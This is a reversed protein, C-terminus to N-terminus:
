AREELAAEESALLARIEDDSLGDLESLLDEAESGEAALVGRGVAEAFEALSPAIFLTSLPLEIGFVQRVRSLIKTALLSHGGLDWFSDHVGIEDIGLVTRWVGAIQEELPTRPGVLEVTLDRTAEPAPLAKRDIKGSSTLPTSKLLVIAAPVMFPPLKAQLMQRLEAPTVSETGPVVYAALRKDGPRDERPIVVATQVGPHSELVAEIEGPEIRFGRLKVQSDVRGLFELEGARWRSLDGTDYLRAGPERSMPDPVFREATLDPRSVYGRALGDGGVYLKGAVGPPVLRLGAALVYVQTNAIPRGIPVPTGTEPTLAHCTTFTTGETPGYCHLLATQPLTRVAQHLHAPSGVDGGTLLQGVGRLADVHSEVMQNFLGTTLFLVTVGYRELFAGLEELSPPGPPFIVLRGGHLLAGWIEWTSADFSVASLQLFVEGPGFRAYDTDCVLRAVNRHTVAVGKPRGTSGSTFMVYALSEPDATVEAFPETSGHFAESLLVREGSVPLAAAFRDEVVQVRAGVDALMGALRESPFQPDLPVYAGGAKLTGLVAAILDASREVCLGVCVDPGVGLARLRAALRGARRDLEAYTTEGTADVVAVADPTRAVQAAFLEHLTAARPYPSPARNWDVLVQRREAEALLPLDGVAAEPRAVIGALLIAFHRLLRRATAPEFLDLAYEADAVFTGDADKWFGLSLDLKATGTDAPLPEVTLGPALAMRGASESEVSFFVDLLPNRSLDRQPALEEVLKEFPVDQHAFAALAKERVRGLLEDFSPEGALDLRLVLTNVFFGILDETEAQTRHAVPTGIWLDAQGTYRHLLVAFGALLTMFSTARRQLGLREVAGALRPDLSMREIGGRLTQVAPRPHDAPLELAPPGDALTRRWWDLQAELEGGALWRRQWAAFDAYQIPLEPLPSPEDATLAGYLVRLERLLVGISWGDSVIHHMTLILYHEKPSLRALLSRLLPGRELEFPRRPEEALLRGTETERFPEELGSLDVQALRHRGAAAVVQVPEGDTDLAFSTRLAAHRRVIETLAAELVGASLPGEARLVLSLNYVPLGPQLRDLFWLRQQASSLPSRGLGRPAVRELAPAGSRERMLGAVAAAVGAVTPQEFLARVPLEVGFIERIRSVTRMALLSHGGLEFFSDHIGVAGVGLLEAWVAALTTEMATRPAQPETELARESDPAPLARRDVKGNPTRPLAELLVFVAPVMYAPLRDQLRQRLEGTSVELAGSVYAVLRRVGPEDERAVVVAEEVGPCAALAAEIEGLEVRFGRIKVQHDLRGLYELEGDARWRVLDGVRYMRAGPEGFPDPLFREATLEPRGRYGRALGGGALYLEGPVGVPVPRLRRDLVWARKNHLPIGISPARASHREILAISSFTTDESPGYLNYLRETEPRRYARDALARPVAEGGLNITRVSAPLGDMALLEAAASPVTDLLRVEVGAPLAGPAKLAPLALASEVMILTGGWALTVFIEFVSMDFTISTSALVGAFEEGSFTERTWYALLVASRHEIAVAKPRGTSGSTYILYALNGPLVPTRADKEDRSDEEDKGAELRLLRAGSPPLAAEVSGETLVLECGSDELLVALREAPYAPDLPVYFGGARLVALLAIVLGPTRPLCIGVPVEPGIGLGRLRQALRASRRELDAYTLTEGGCVLAIAEPTRAAQAEFLGHLVEGAPHERRVSERWAALQRREEETLLPLDAVQSEPAAVMGALLMSLHGLLRDITAEDFLDAAYEATVALTEGTRSFLLALDFKATDTWVEFMPAALGSGLDLETPPAEQLSTLVQFLPTRSLDRQPALEAVLHEFPLDQHAYAALATARVRALLERVDPDGALSARLVLTNVFFGILNQIEARGRGAVPTGTVLDEVGTWRHLLALFAATTAMFLTVGQRRGLAALGAATEPDLRSRRIGGRFSQVAPRPRDAPLELAAPIGALRERWWATEAALAEGALWRRQWLAFDAYQVPLPALPSPRGSAAARYLYSIERVLVEVSWADSAIHHTAVVLHHEAAGLRLLRSRLLPGRALDFPRAAEERALRGAEAAADPLGALDIVPLGRPAFPQVVQVPEGGGAERFISRLAEHRRVVEDLAAALADLRLGGGRIRFGVTMNYLATEAEYRDLFWLRQQAFSLPAEEGRAEPVVAPAAARGERAAAAILEALEAATPQDFIATLDLDVGFAARLRSALHVVLLSHGGLRFFDDHIGVPGDLGLLEAFLDAVIEEVPNRPAEAAADAPAAPTMRALAARDVKGNATLPLADLFIWAAPIMYEPLSAALFGRLLDRIGPEEAGRLAVYACLRGEDERLLVAAERVAPHRGLAAQIEGLEIRFGRLKVQFDIRGLFEIEGGPLWRALDGTRYMRSGPAGFPDPVFREATMEPRRRYGRALWDGAICLEGPVGAPLPQLGGRDLIYVRTNDLPSGIEPLREGHPAVRCGTALVTTETPGYTNFLAFPTDPNPRRNLRDAGTPMARLALGPPLPESLISEALVAPLWSVTIRREALWALLEPPSLVLEAAAVHLSAGAALASWTEWVSADFGTGAVMSCRDAPGRGFHRHDWAVLNALGRHTLETGKPAGTSGSTYIVYALNELGLDPAAPNEDSEGAAFDDVDIRLVPLDLFRLPPGVHGGDQGMLREVTLLLSAGSDRLMYALREAPHVPDIPLYAAGSKLAAAAAIVLEPSREFRLAVTDGAGIGLRLLRHALRNARRNLEGYTLQGGEWSVAVAEPAARVREEFRAHVPADPIEAATRNWGNVVQEREDAALLPLEAVAAGPDAVIGALLVRYHGLLRRVTAGDFLDAAYEAIAEIGDPDRELFLGLDFPATGPHLATASATLQPGLDPRPPADQVALAVQFLPARSSDRGPSLEEVLRDFPLDQHAYAGLATERVGALLGHFSAGGATGARLVLMNVFFGILRELELRGRGAVPSGVVLDEQGTYRHLLSLYAALFTMFLTAGNRRSLAALDAALGGGLALREVGGALSPVAPRARDAPLELVEPAGALRRRWWALQEELVEGQLWRRQWVAFDPYQVPLPPLPSPREAAFARYLASVEELLVGMSWADSVIHHMGLLLRHDDWGLRLLAARLLPGRELDYPRRAEAAALRGAEARRAPEPLGALDIVPLPREAPPAVVQRPGSEGVPVVFTTRLAEHRHIVEALAAGLAAASLEGRLEYAQALNHLATGPRLSEVFWLRQQAFSLPLAGDRPAPVLPPLEPHPAAAAIREALRAVTPAEFVGRIGLDAGCAERVRSALQTALLSHGGLHFFDEHVGVARDLGLVQAFLGALLEEFPTRPAEATEPAAPMMRALARRDVKGNPTLPLSDLFIWLNPIMYEPLSEALYGRLLDRAGPEPAGRLIVCACLREDERVLVVAERVAPHRGLVTQIEGLEIRLGRVKVQHDLRGLFEIEGHALWRAQDGTRYLREGPGGFPDPTFREATLEPRGRYGQALGAGALWLEGPVGTRVPQLAPDLVYARTNAIPTGIEPAREGRPAVRGAVTIVTTETPGYVNALEFPLGEAPRRHLRDGGAVLWRLALAPPLPETLVAEALPTPLYAITIRRAALWALLAPPSLVLEAPPVHLSAGAALTSWMEWVSGDFGPGGALSCRDAPVRGFFRHDWAVLNSLGRHRLETGKPAGTSGSTYILYALGEPGLEPTAPDEDSEGAAFDDVNLRLVPLDTGQVRLPPGVHGGGHGGDQGDLREATLLAAAGSDRLMYALREAPHAPDIPLYAAGAKLVALAALVLEPSRELRLAVTEGAGVGLRRLRHALRNARRNLEGFTLEGGEWTVAPAQPTERAWRAVRAHVPEEPIEAATRNWEVMVQEREADDLLPVCDEPSVREPLSIDHCEKM